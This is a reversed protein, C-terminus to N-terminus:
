ESGFWYRSVALKAGLPSKGMRRYEDYAAELEDLHAVAFERTSMLKLDKLKIDSLGAEKLM